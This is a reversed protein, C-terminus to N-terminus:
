CCQAHSAKLFTTPFTGLAVRFRFLISHKDEAAHDSGTEAASTQRPVRRRGQHSRRDHASAHKPQTARRPAPKPPPLDALLDRLYKENPIAAELAARVLTLLDSSLSYLM